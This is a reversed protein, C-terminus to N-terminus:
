AAKKIKQVATRAQDIDASIGVIKEAAMSAIEAAISQVSDMADKSAKEIEKETIEVEAAARAEFQQIKDATTQKIGKDVDAYFGAAKAQSDKLAAEYSQRAAETKDKLSQASDLNGQIYSERAQLVAGISPLTKKSFVLYLVGFAITLWFIQSAYSSPDFQPLGGGEGHDGEVEQVTSMQMDADLQDVHEAQPTKHGTAEMAMVPSSLLAFFALLIIHFRLRM